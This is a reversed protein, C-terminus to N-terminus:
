GTYKRVRIILLCLALLGFVWAFNILIARYIEPKEIGWGRAFISRLSDIAHTTPLIYSLYRLYDSMAEVPWLVGSLLM